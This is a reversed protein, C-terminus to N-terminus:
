PRTFTEGDRPGREWYYGTWGLPEIVFEYVVLEGIVVVVAWAFSWWGADGLALVITAPIYTEAIRAIVHRRRVPDIFADAVRGSFERLPSLFDGTKSM